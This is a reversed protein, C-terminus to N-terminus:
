NVSGRGKRIGLAMNRLLRLWYIAKERTKWYGESGYTFGQQLATRLSWVGGNGAYYTRGKGVFGAYHADSSGTVAVGIHQRRLAEIAAINYKVGFGPVANTCEVADFPVSRILDGCGLRKRALIDLLAPSYPHHAVALGGAEHIQQVTEEASLNQPFGRMVFLAGIHGDRSSVETGPIVAFPLRRAHVIRRAELSGEVVDHDTIAIADLGMNLAKELVRELADGDSYHTHMHLDASNQLVVEGKNPIGALRLGPLFYREYATPAWTERLAAAAHDEEADREFAQLATFDAEYQELDVDGRQM